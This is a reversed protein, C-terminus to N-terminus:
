SDKTSVGLDELILPYVERVLYRKLCRHIEKRSMGEKTRREVYARTRPDSRMRVMTITWLANNASRDGGSNLRHRVTKGSSAQLPSVGCLAALSSESKLREPNDGAVAVLVAATQPGVGFRGRLRPAYRTTLSELMADLTKIEEKLALWRKALLVLTATLTQLLPTSGLSRLRSCGMVCDSTREKWLRQRIEPPASILLARLQNIAQTQAKVASRRTVSVSRMAEAAGTQEKPVATAMGSLVARAANEADTPDSKGRSRRRARDPRNVELVQVKHDRLARALGAGYTGTGEVGARCLTGFSRAWTILELYGAADTTVSLTGLFKGSNSILAGVHLNLHTDVGLIVEDIKMLSRQRSRM